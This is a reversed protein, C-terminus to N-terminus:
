FAMIIAIVDFPIAGRDVPVGILGLVLVGAGGALGIGISGLRAGLFIAGLVILLEIIIM